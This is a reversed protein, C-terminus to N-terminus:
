EVHAGERQVHPLNDCGAAVPDSANCQPSEPDHCRIWVRVLRGSTAAGATSLDRALAADPAQERHEGEGGPDGREGGVLDDDLRDDVQRQLRLAIPEEDPKMDRGRHGAIRAQGAKEAAVRGCDAIAKADDGGVDGAVEVQLLFLGAQRIRGDGDPRGVVAGRDLHLKPIGIRAPAAPNEARSFVNLAFSPGTRVLARYRGGDPPSWVTLTVPGGVRIANSGAAEVTSGCNATRPTRAKNSM